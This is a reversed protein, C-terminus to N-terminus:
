VAGEMMRQLEIQKKRTRELCAQLEDFCDPHYGLISNFCNVLVPEACEKSCWCCTVPKIETTM